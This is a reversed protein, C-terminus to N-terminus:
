LSVLADIRTGNPDSKIAFHNALKKVGLLGKGLGTRSRYRGSLVEEVNHIGPGADSAHIRIKQPVSDVIGIAITGGSTYSVINRALESVITAVKQATLSRAGSDGAFALATMRAHSIDEEVHVPIELTDASCRPGGFGDLDEQLRRQKEPGIFLSVVQELRPVVRGLERESLLARPIECERLARNLTAEANPRSLHRQLVNLLRQYTTTM